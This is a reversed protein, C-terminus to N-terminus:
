VLLLIAALAVAGIRGLMKPKFKPRCVVFQVHPRESEPAFMHSYQLRRSLAPCRCFAKVAHNLPVVSSKTVQLQIAVPVQRKIEEKRMARRSPASAARTTPM